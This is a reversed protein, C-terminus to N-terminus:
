ESTLRSFDAVGGFRQLLARLLGLRNEREGPDESMVLVAEFFRDVLPRAEALAALSGEVDSAAPIRDLADALAAEAPDTFRDRQFQTGTHERALGAVRRFTARIPAFRGDSAMAGIARVRSAVLAVDAEGTAMVADVLDAAHGEGVLMARLRALVFEVVDARPEGAPALWEALPRSCAKAGLDLLIAVIGVGARRLGLPDGSGTPAMGAAFTDHLLTIREALALARGAATGPTADGSFRPLYHEEIAIAGPIPRAEQEGLLRGVHGQLEPFEGVMQTALDCKCRAGAVRAEIVEHPLAGVLPALAEAVSAVRAQRDAMTGLGRIWTMGALKQGHQELTLKRDEAYFFKADDFRAALVRAYGRAMTPADGVPNNSVVLFRNSLRGAEYLPFYRQHVKMSEVLLRPPLDLLEHAFEAAVVRPSEVLNKVEALLAADIRVEAGLERASAQLLEVITQERAAGDALVGRATLEAEWAGASGVAFPEPSLLWHGESTDRAPLGAVTADVRQGDLVACVYRLPRAFKATGTAWRMSKKFPISLIAQELGAALVAAAPEGGEVRRIAVVPGKPGEARLLAAPEVGFKKAFALGAATPADGAFAIQVSPGTILKEQTPRAAAVAPFIAVLRRPTGLTRPPSASLPGLVAALAQGLAAHAADVFRAPLEETGVEVFLEPM